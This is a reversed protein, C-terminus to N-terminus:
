ARLKSWDLRRAELCANTTAIGHVVPTPVPQGAVRKLQATTRLLWHRWSPFRESLEGGLVFFHDVVRPAGGRVLLTSAEANTAMPMLYLLGACTAPVRHRYIALRYAAGDILPRSAVRVLEAAHLVAEAQPDPGTATDPVTPAPLMLKGALSLPGLLLLLAVALTNRSPM